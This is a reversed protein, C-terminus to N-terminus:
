ATGSRGLVFASIAGAVQEPADLMVYTGAGEVLSLTADPFDAELRRAHDVPFLKDADGWLLLVPRDFSGIAGAADLTVSPELTLSTRLADARAASSTTFAGFVEVARPNQPPNTAVSKLFFKQGPGSALFRLIGAGLRKSKRMMAVMKDFGEPPFHEYSDCNTLVLAGIRELGPEGSALSALILGGGTDNGVLTVDRLDLAELFKPIMRAVARASLDASPAPDAHGGLPWTPVIVRLGDLRETVDSWLAGAVYVGHVFVVVPGTGSEVYRITVGDISISPM